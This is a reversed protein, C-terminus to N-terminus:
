FVLYKRTVPASTFTGGSQSAGSDDTYAKQKYEVVTEFGGTIPTCTTTIKDGVRPSPFRVPTESSAVGMLITLVASTITLLLGISVLIGLELFGKEKQKQVDAATYTFTKTEVANLFVKVRVYDHLYVSSKIKM